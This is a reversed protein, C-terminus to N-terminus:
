LKIVLTEDGVFNELIAIFFCDMLSQKRNMIVTAVNTKIRINFTINKVIKVNKVTNM